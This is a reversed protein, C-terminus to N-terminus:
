WLEPVQCHRDAVSISCVPSSVCWWMFMATWSSQPRARKVRTCTSCGCAKALCPLLWCRPQHALM